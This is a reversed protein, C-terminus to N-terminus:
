FLSTFGNQLTYEYISSYARSTLFTWGISCSKKESNKCYQRYINLSQSIRSNEEVMGNRSREKDLRRLNWKPGKLNLLSLLGGECIDAKRIESIGWERIRSFKILNFFFDLSPYIQINPQIVLCFVKLKLHYFCILDIQKRLICSKRNSLGPPAFVLNQGMYLAPITALFEWGDGFPCKCFLAEPRKLIIVPWKASNTFVVSPPNQFVAAFMYEM